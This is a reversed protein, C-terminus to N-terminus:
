KLKFFYKKMEKHSNIITSCDGIFDDLKKTWIANRRVKKLSSLSRPIKYFQPSNYRDQRKPTTMYISTDPKKYFRPSEYNAPTLQKVSKIIPNIYKKAILVDQEDPKRQNLDSYKLYTYFNAEKDFLNFNSITKIFEKHDLSQSEIMFSHQKNPQYAYSKNVPPHISIIRPPVLKKIPSVSKKLNKNLGYSELASDCQYNKSVTEYGLKKNDEPSIQKRLLLKRELTKRMDEMTVSVTNVNNFKVINKNLIRSPRQVSRIRNNNRM